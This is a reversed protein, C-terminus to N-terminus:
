SMLGLFARLIAILKSILKVVQRKQMIFHLFSKGFKCRTIDKNTLGGLFSVM